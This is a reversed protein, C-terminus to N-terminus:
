RHVRLLKWLVMTSSWPGSSARRQGAGCRFDHTTFAVKSELVEPAVQRERGNMSASRRSGLKKFSMEGSGARMSSERPRAACGRDMDACGVARRYVLDQFCAFCCSWGLCEDITCYEIAPISRKTTLRLRYCRQLPTM